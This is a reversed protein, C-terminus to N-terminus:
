FNKGPSACSFGAVSKSRGGREHRHKHLHGQLNTHKRTTRYMTLQAHSYTRKYTFYAVTEHVNATVAYLFPTTLHHINFLLTRVSNRNKMDRRSIDRKFSDWKLIGTQM